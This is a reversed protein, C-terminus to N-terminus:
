VPPLGLAERIRPHTVEGDRTVLTDRVIEDDLNVNLRPGAEHTAVLNLLFTVVNKSYMESAHYPISGALNVPGLITVDHVVVTEGAVSPEVNGGREVAIDVIVSGPRMGRVMEDTVLVPATRGPIAATTIVVDQEAVVRTMLERQRRYFEEDMEKAYGGTGEATELEMEVFRGGLSEVQERVAPRVDYASVVAGLRKATAIAQLGAVGAGVIFVKAPTLTGAATMLMPFMRPLADAALLVAKYGAITAMSSLIDMSQARTIRPVLELAFTTVGREALARLPQPESLPDCSAILTRGQRFPEADFGPCAGAARVQVIVDAREFLDGREVVEAGKAVYQDDPFGAAHGAGREVVVKVGAKGLQAVGAPVLAVRREDAATERPVGVTLTSPPLTPQPTDDSM